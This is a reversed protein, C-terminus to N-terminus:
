VEFIIPNNVLRYREDLVSANIFKLDNVHTQGYGEHIHGFIHYKLNHLEALRNYLSLSGANKTGDYADGVKIADLIYKPPTHTILIDTNQPIHKYLDALDKDPKMFWWNMFQVSYPSGWINIGNITIGNEKLFYINKYKEKHELTYDHNGDHNGFTCIKYDYPLSDLWELFDKGDDFNNLQLDGAFLLVDAPNEQLFKNLKKSRHQGHTDSLTIFNM